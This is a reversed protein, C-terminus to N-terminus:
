QKNQFKKTRFKDQKVFYIILLFAIIIPAPGAPRVAAYSSTVLVSIFGIMRSFVFSKPSFELVAM